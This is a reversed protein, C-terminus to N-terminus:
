GSCRRRRWSARPPSASPWSRATAATPASSRFDDPGLAACQGVAASEQGISLHAPGRHDYPIGQWAGKTKISNLMSEFERIYVMDVWLRKLEDVGFRKKEAAYDPQYQNVPISDIDIKAPKRVVAPDVLMNKPM